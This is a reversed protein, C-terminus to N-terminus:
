KPAKSINKIVSTNATRLLQVLCSMSMFPYTTIVAFSKCKMYICVCSPADYLNNPCKWSLFDCGIPKGCCKHCINRQSLFPHASSQSPTLLYTLFLLSSSSLCTLILSSPLHSYPFLPLHDRLVELASATVALALLFPFDLSTTFHQLDWRPSDRCNGKSVETERVRKLSQDRGTEKDGATTELM